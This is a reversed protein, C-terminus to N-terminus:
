LDQYNYPSTYERWMTIKKSHKQSRNKNLTRLFIRKFVGKNIEFRNSQEM